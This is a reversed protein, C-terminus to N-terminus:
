ARRICQVDNVEVEDQRWGISLVRRDPNYAPVVELLGTFSGRETQVHVNSGELATILESREIPNM